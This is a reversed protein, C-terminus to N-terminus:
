PQKVEKEKYKGKRYVICLRGVCKSIKNKEAYKRIEYGHNEANHRDIGIRVGCLPLLPPKQMQMSISVCEQDRVCIVVQRGIQIDRALRGLAFAFICAVAGSAMKAIREIIYILL